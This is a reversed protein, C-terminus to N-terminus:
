RRRMISVMNDFLEQECNDMISNQGSDYLIKVTKDQKEYMLCTVKSLDICIHSNYIIKDKGM